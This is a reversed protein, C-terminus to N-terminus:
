DTSKSGNEPLEPTLPFVELFTNVWLEFQVQFLEEDVERIASLNKATLSMQSWVGAPAGLLDYVTIALNLATQHNESSLVECAKAKIIKHAVESPIEPVFLRFTREM